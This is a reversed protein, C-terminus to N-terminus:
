KKKLTVKEHITTPGHTQIGVAIFSAVKRRRAIGGGNMRGLIAAKGSRYSVQIGVVVIFADITTGHSTATQQLGVAITVQEIRHCRRSLGLFFQEYNRDSDLRVHPRVTAFDTFPEPDIEALARANTTEIMTRLATSAADGADNWGTFGAVVVPNTLSIHDLDALWRVHEM